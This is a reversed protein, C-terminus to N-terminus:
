FTIKYLVFFVTLILFMSVCFVRFQRDLSSNLDDKTLIRDGSFRESVVQAIAEAQKETFGAGILIKFCKYTDIM